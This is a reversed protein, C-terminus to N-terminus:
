GCVGTDCDCDGECPAYNNEETCDEEGEGCDCGTEACHESGCTVGSGLPDFICFDDNHPGNCNGYVAYNYIGMGSYVISVILIITFAWSLIEFNKYLLRAIRPRKHMLSGTIKSKLRQDLGSTCKRLTLRRFVCDFAEKAIPRYKGSFIALVAFVILALICIM